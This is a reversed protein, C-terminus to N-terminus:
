IIALILGIVRSSVTRVRPTFLINMEM